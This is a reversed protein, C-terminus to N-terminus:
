FELGGERAGDAMAKVRGHYIFGNRDFVVTKIGLEQCKSAVAKGVEKAKEKKEKGQLGDRLAPSNCGITFLTKGNGNNATDDVLQAYIHKSSRFVSLRPKATTGSIKRRIRRKRRIRGKLKASTKGM